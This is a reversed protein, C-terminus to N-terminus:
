SGLSALLRVKTYVLLWMRTQPEHYPSNTPNRVVEGARCLDETDVRLFGFFDFTALCNYNGVATTARVGRTIQLDGSVRRVERRDFPFQTARIDGFGVGGLFGCNWVASWNM